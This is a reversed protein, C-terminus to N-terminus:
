QLNINITVTMCFPLAENNMRLPEYEWQQITDVISKNFAPFAPTIQFARITWVRAVKGAADVLVEGVWVGGLTTAPPLQPYKPRADRIKKPARIKGGIKQPAGGDVNRAERLRVGM